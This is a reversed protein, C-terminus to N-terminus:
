VGFIVRGIFNHATKETEIQVVKLGPEVLNGRRLGIDLKQINAGPIHCTQLVEM